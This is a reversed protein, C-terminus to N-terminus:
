FLFKLSLSQGDYGDGFNEGSLRSSLSFSKFNYMDKIRECCENINVIKNQTQTKYQLDTINFTMKIQFYVDCVFRRAIDSIYGPSMQTPFLKDSNPVLTTIRSNSGGFHIFSEIRNIGNIEDTIETLVYRIDSSSNTRLFNEVSDISEQNKYVKPSQDEEKKKLFDFFGEYTRIM